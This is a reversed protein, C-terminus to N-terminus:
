RGEDDVELDFHSEPNKELFERGWGKIKCWDDDYFKTSQNLIINIARRATWEDVSGPLRGGSTLAIKVAQPGTISKDNMVTQVFKPDHLLEDM